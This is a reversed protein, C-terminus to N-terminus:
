WVYNLSYFRIYTVTTMWLLQMIKKGNIIATDRNTQEFPHPRDYLYL